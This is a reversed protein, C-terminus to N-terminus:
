KKAGISTLIKGMKFMLSWMLQSKSRGWTNEKAVREIIFSVFAKIKM